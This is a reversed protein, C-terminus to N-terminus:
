KGERRGRLALGSALLAIASWLALIATEPSAGDGTRALASSVPSGNPSGDSAVRSSNGLGGASNDSNGGSGSGSGDTVGGPEDDTPTTDEPDDGTPQRTAAVTFTVTVPDGDEFYAVLTHIGVALGSLHDAPLTVRVDADGVACAAPDVDGDDLTALSFQPRGHETTEEFAFALGESSGKTWTAGDGETCAYTPRACPLPTPKSPSTTLM